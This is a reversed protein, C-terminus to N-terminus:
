SVEKFEYGARAVARRTAEIIDPRENHPLVNVERASKMKELVEDQKAEALKQLLQYLGGDEEELANHVKLISLLTAIISTTPPPVLLAVIAGHDLRLRAAVEVQKGNQFRAITPLIVKEEMAIHGLLGKRFEAFPVMDIVGPQPTARSLLGDLRDHDEAMFNYLKGPM